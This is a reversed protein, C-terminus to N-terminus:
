QPRTGGEWECLEAEGRDKCAGCQSGRWPDAHLPPVACARLEGALRPRVEAETAQSRTLTLCCAGLRPQLHSGTGAPSAPQPARLDAARSAVASVSCCTCVAKKKKKARGADADADSRGHQHALAEIAMSHAADVGYMSPGADHSAAGYPQPPQPPQPSASGSARAADPSRLRKMLGSTHPLSSPALTPLHPQSHPSPLTHLLPRCGASAASIGQHPARRAALRACLGGRPARGWRSRKEREQWWM